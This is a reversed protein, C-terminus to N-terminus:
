FDWLDIFKDTTRKLLSQQASIISKIRYPTTLDYEVGGRPIPLVTVIRHMVLQTMHESITSRGYGTVRCLDSQSAKGIKALCELIRRDTPSRVLSFLAKDFDSMGAPYFRSHGREERREIEGVKSLSEVHYRTTNYSLGILRQLGRLHLGPFLSVFVLIRQRNGIPQM